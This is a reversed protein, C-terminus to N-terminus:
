RLGLVPAMTKGFCFLRVFIEKYLTQILLGNMNFNLMLDNQPQGLYSSKSTIM